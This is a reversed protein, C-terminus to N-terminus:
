QIVFAQECIYSSIFTKAVVTIDKIVYHYQNKKFVM